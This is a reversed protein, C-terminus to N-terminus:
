QTDKKKSGTYSVRVSRSWNFVTECKGCEAEGYCEGGDVGLEWSDKYIHGCYPCKLDYGYTDSM